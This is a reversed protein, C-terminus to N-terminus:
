RLKAADWGVRDVPIGLCSLELAFGATVLFVQDAVTALNQTLEGLRDRFLRGMPYAPVVGWGVEESVLIVEGTCCELSALFSRVLPDWEESSIELGQAVWGGLSDVLACCPQPLKELEASLDLGTEWTPWSSPRRQRHQRIREAWEPDAIPDVKPGTALYIVALDSAAALKEALRSKGSRVPGCILVISM